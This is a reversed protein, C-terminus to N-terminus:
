TNVGARHARLEEVRKLKRELVEVFENPKIVGGLIMLDMMVQHEANHVTTEGYRAVFRDRLGEPDKGFALSSAHPVWIKPDPM